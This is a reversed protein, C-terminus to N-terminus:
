SGGGATLDGTTIKWFPKGTPPNLVTASIEYQIPDDGERPFTIGSSLGPRTRPFVNLDRHAGDRVELIFAFESVEFPEPPLYLTGGDAAEVTGGGFAQELTAASTQLLVFTLASSVSTVDDRDPYYSQHSRVQSREPEYTMGPPSKVSTRGLDVLGHAAPSWTHDGAASPLLTAPFPTAWLRVDLAKRIQGPNQSM